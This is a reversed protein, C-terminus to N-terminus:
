AALSVPNECERAVETQKQRVQDELSKKYNILLYVSYLATLIEAALVNFWVSEGAFIEPLLFLALVPLVLGRALSMLSSIRSRAIAQYVTMAIINLAMPIVALGYIMMVLSGLEVFETSPDSAFASVISAPMLVALLGASVVLGMSVKLSISLIELIREPQNAGHNYSLLPQMTQSVGYTLLVVLWMCNLVVSYVSLYLNGGLKLLVWNSILILVGVSSEMILTPMGNGLIAKILRFDPKIFGLPLRCRPSRFHTLLVIPVSLQAIGTALAGGFMGWGMEIMFIWDLVVNIIASMIMVVMVLRPNGDNRIFNSFVWGVAYFPSFWTLTAIYEQSLPILEGKAGFLQVIERQWILTAVSILVMIVSIFTVAQRFIVQGEAIKGEGFRIGMLASGGVGVMMSIAFMFAFYPIIINIAALGVEGMAHGFFMVDAVVYLSKIVMGAMAPFLYHTFCQRVPDKGLDLGSQNTNLANANKTM